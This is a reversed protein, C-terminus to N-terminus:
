NDFGNDFILNEVESLILLSYTQVPESEIICISYTGTTLAQNSDLLDTGLDSEGLDGSFIDGILVKIPPLGTFIQFSSTTSSGDEVYDELIIHNVIRSENVTFQFCDEFDAGQGGIEGSIREIEATLAINDISDFHHSLDGSISENYTEVPNGYVTIVTSDEEAPTNPDDTLIANDENYSFIGQNHIESNLGDPIPNSNGILAWFDVHASNGHNISGLNVSLMDDGLTNGSIIVGQTTSVTGSILELNPDTFPDDLFSGSTSVGSNNEIDIQYALADGANLYGSSDLDNIAYIYKDASLFSGSSGQIDKDHHTSLLEKEDINSFNSEPNFSNSNQNNENAQLSLSVATMATLIKKM